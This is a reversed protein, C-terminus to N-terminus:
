KSKNPYFRLTFILLLVIVLFFFIRVNLPTPPLSLPNQISFLADSIDAIQIGESNEAVVKILNNFGNQSTSTTWYIILEVDCTIPTLQETRMIYHWSTGNDESLYFSYSCPDKKSNLVPRWRIGVTGNLTNGGNPFLITLGILDHPPNNLSTLPRADFNHSDGDIFYVQDVIGDSNEDPSEWDDWYNCSFLNRAGHDLAQSGHNGIFDNWLINNDSSDVSLTIGWPGNKVISNGSITCNGSNRLVIGYYSNNAIINNEISINQSFSVLIGISANSLEQATVVMDTCNILIVQGVGSPVIGGTADQSYFIVRGNESNNVVSHQLFDLIQNGRFDIGNNKLINNNITNNRSSVSIGGWKCNSVFNTSINNNRSSVYIGIWKSNSIFNTSIHSNSSGLYIGHYNSDSINNGIVILQACASAWVGDTCNFIKNGTLKISLSFFLSIGTGSNITNNILTSNTSSEIRIGSSSGMVTNNILTSNNSESIEVGGWSNNIIINNLIVNNRSENLLIGRESNMTITNNSILGHDVNTLEIGIVGNTLFCNSIQFYVNTDQISLLVDFDSVRTINLGDIIFPDSKNGEGPWNELAATATFNSNGSISIIDHDVYNYSTAQSINHYIGVGSQPNKLAKKSQKLLDLQNSLPIHTFYNTLKSSSGKNSVESFETNNPYNIIGILVFLIILSKIKM